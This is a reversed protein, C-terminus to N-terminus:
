TGTDSHTKEAFGACEEEGALGETFGSCVSM